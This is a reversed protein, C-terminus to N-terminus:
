RGPENGGRPLFIGRLERRVALADGELGVAGSALLNPDTVAVAGIWDLQSGEATRGRASRAPRRVAPLNNEVRACWSVPGNVDDSTVAAQRALEGPSRRLIPHWAPRSVGAPHVQTGITATIPFVPLDRGPLPPRTLPRLFTTIGSELRGVPLNAVRQAVRFLAAFDPPNGNLTALFGQHILTDLRARERSPGDQVLANIEQGWLGRVAGFGLPRDGEEAELRALHSLHGHEIFLKRPT